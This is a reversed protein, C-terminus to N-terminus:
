HRRLKGGYGYASSGPLGPQHQGDVFNVHITGSTLPSGGSILGSASDDLTINVGSITSSDGVNAFPVIKAGTPGVM